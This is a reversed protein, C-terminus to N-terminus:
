KKEVKVKVPESALTVKGFGKEDPKTGTPPPNISTNFRATITYEGPAAWYASEATGRFGHRLSTIKITHTKGAALTMAKPLRFDATFGLRPKVAVASPGKLELSLTVPDGTAYFQVDKGSTNTLELELEVTPASPVKGTKEGEKIEKVYDDASKGGLDLTYTAKKAVLKAKIPPEDAKPKSEDAAVPRVVLAVTALALSLTRHM